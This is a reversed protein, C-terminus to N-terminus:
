NQKLIRAPVGVAVVNDPIDSIVCAGAGIVVNEGIRVGPIASANTGIDTGEGIQVNGALSVGPGLSCYSGVKGDHSVSAHPNLLVFDGLLVNVTTLSGPLAIVGDGIRVEDAVEFDPGLVAPFTAGHSRLRSVIQRRISPKGIAVVVAHGPHDVLWDSGGLIERGNVVSGHAAPNDDLHGIVRIPRSDEIGNQYHKAGPMSLLWDVERGLGGAGFIVVELQNM